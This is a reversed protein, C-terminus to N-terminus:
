FKCGRAGTTRRTIKINPRRLNKLDQEQTKEKEKFREEKSNDDKENM